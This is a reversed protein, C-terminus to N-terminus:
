DAELIEVLIIDLYEKTIYKCEIATRYVKGNVVQETLVDIQHKVGSKGLAKFKNGHGIVKIGYKSGLMEYIYRTIDEYMKWDLTSYNKDKM